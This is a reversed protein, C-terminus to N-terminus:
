STAGQDVVHACSYDKIEDSLTLPQTGAQQKIFNILETVAPAGENSMMNTTRGDILVPRSKGDGYEEVMKELDPIFSMPNTRMKNHEDLFEKDFDTQDAGNTLSTFTLLLLCYLQM